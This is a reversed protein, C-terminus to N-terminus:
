LRKFLPLDDVRNLRVPRIEERPLVQTGAYPNPTGYNFPEAHKLNEYFQIIESLNCIARKDPVVLNAHPILMGVDGSRGSVQVVRYNPHNEISIQPHSKLSVPM